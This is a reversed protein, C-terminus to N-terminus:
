LILQVLSLFFHIKFNMAKLEYQSKLSDTIERHIPKSEFIRTNFVKEFFEVSNLIFKQLLIMVLLEIHNNKISYVQIHVETKQANDQINSTM